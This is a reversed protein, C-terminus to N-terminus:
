QPCRAIVRDILALLSGRENDPGKEVYVDKVIGLPELEERLDEWPEVTLFGIRESALWAPIRDAALAIRAAPFRLLSQVLHKGLKAAEESAGMATYLQTWQEDAGPPLRVDVIVADYEHQKLRQVAETADVAISLAYRGDRFIAAFMERYEFRALDEIWLVPKM